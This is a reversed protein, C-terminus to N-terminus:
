NYINIDSILSFINNIKVESLYAISERYPILFILEWYFNKDYKCIQIHEVLFETQNKM